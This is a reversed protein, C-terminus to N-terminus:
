GADLKPRRRARQRRSLLEDNLRTILAAPTVGVELAWRVFELVDLYRDGLEVKSVFTQHKGLRKALDEQTLGASVRAAQLEGLFKRYASDYISM